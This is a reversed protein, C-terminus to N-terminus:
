GKITKEINDHSKYGILLLVVIYLITAIIYGLDIHRHSFENIIEKFYFSFGILLSMSLYREVKYFREGMIMLWIGAFIGIRPLVLNGTAYEYYMAIIVMLSILLTFYKDSQNNYYFADILCSSVYITIHAIFYSYFFAKIFDTEKFFYIDTSLVIVTVALTIALSIVEAPIGTKSAYKLALIHGLGYSIPIALLYLISDFGLFYYHVIMWIIAYVFALLKLYSKIM